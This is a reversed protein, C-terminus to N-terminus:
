QKNAFPWSGAALRPCIPANEESRSSIRGRASSQFSTHFSDAFSIAGSMVRINWFTASVKMIWEMRTIRPKTRRRIHYILRRHCIIVPSDFSESSSLGFVMRCCAAYFVRASCRQFSEPSRHRFTDCFLCRRNKSFLAPLPSFALYSSVARPTIRSAPFVGHPALCFLPLAAPGYLGFKKRSHDEPITARPRFSLPPGDLGLKESSSDLQEASALFVPAPLYIIM